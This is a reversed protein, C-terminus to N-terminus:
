GAVGPRAAGRCSLWGGRRAVRNRNGHVPSSYLLCNATPLECSSSARRLVIEQESGVALQRSNWCSREHEKGSFVSSKDIFVSFRQRRYSTASGEGFLGVSRDRLVDSSSNSGHSM